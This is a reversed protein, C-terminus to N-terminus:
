CLGLRSVAHNGSADTGQRTGKNAINALPVKRRVWGSGDGNHFQPRVLPLSDTSAQRIFLASTFAAFSMTIAFLAIWIGSESGKRLAVSRPLAMPAHLTSSM